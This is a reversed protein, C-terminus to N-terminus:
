RVGSGAERNLLLLRGGTADFTVSAFRSLIGGGLLGAEGPFIPRAHLGVKVGRLREGGLHVEACLSSAGGPALGITAPGAQGAAGPSVVWQLATNCGTDVRTWDAPGDAVSVRVCLAGHRTALPLSSGTARLESRALLRLKQAAYDLQVIRGRFFDAGLLGDIHRRCEGSVASLDLALMSGPVPAGGVEATFALLRYATSRTHVGQVSEAAGLPTGIRRATGLDLVSASAGSDLLFRLPVTQGVASVNLWIMGSSSEFPIETAALAPSALLLAAALRIFRSWLRM